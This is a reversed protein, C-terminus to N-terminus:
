DREKIRGYILRFLTPSLLCTIIAFFVITAEEDVSIVGLEYGIRAGAIVLSLQSTLLLGMSLSNKFGFHPTNVMSIIIKVTFAIALLTLLLGMNSTLVTGLDIRAGVSIFFFPILFGYGIGNLKENLRWGGRFLVSLLAGALFAGLIAEVQVLYALGVFSIMIALSGRVGIEMPDDTFWRSLFHPFYWIMYRGVFYAAFFALFIGLILLVEYNLVGTKIWIAYSALIIMTAIDAIVATVLLQQGLPKKIIGMERLIPLVIGVSTTMLIIPYLFPLTLLTTVGIVVAFAVIFYVLGNVTFRLNRKLLNFDLELGSLFMLFILGLRSLFELWETQYIIGWYYGFIIGAFVELVVAPIRIREAVLPTLFALLTIVVLMTADIM